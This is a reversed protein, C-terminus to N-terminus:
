RNQCTPLTPPAVQCPMRVTAGNRKAPRRTPKKMAGAKFASASPSSTAVPRPTRVPTTRLTPANAPTSSQPAVVASAPGMANTPSIIGWLIRSMEPGSMFPMTGSDAAPPAMRKVIESIIPRSMPEGLSSSAPITVANKPAGM